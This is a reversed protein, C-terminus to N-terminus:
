EVQEEGDTMGVLRPPVKREGFALLLRAVCFEYVGDLRRIQCSHFASPLFFFPLFHFCNGFHSTSSRGPAGNRARLKSSFHNKPAFSQRSGDFKRACWRSV